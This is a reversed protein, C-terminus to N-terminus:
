LRAGADPLETLGACQLKCPCRCIGLVSQDLFLPQLVDLPSDAQHVMFFVGRRGM